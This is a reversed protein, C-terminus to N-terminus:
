YEIALWSKSEEPKQEKVRWAQEQTTDIDVLGTSM